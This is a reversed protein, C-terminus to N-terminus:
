FTIFWQYLPKLIWNLHNNSKLYPNVKSEEMSLGFHNETLFYNNTKLYLQTGCCYKYCPFAARHKDLVTIIHTIRFTVKSKGKRFVYNLCCCFLPLLFCNFFPFGFQVLASTSLIALLTVFCEKVTFVLLHNKTMCSWQWTIFHFFTENDKGM